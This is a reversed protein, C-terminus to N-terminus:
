FYRYFLSCRKENLLEHEDNEDLRELLGKLNPNKFNKLGERFNAAGSSRDCDVDNGDDM